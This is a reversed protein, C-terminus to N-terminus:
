QDGAFEDLQGFDEDSLPLILWKNKRDLMVPKGSDIGGVAGRRVRCVFNKNEDSLDFSSAKLTANRTPEFVDDIHYENDYVFDTFKGKAPHDDPIINNFIKEIDKLTVTKNGTRNKAKRELLERVEEEAKDRLPNSIDNKKTFDSIAKFLEDVSRNNSVDKKCGLADKFFNSRSKGEIFRVYPEGNNDPYTAEFLTLDFLAAQSLADTDIPSLKKPTLVVSDFDFGSKKNVMVILLRGFDDDNGNTKYHVFVVPNDSVNGLRGDDIVRAKIRDMVSHVMKKFVLNKSIYKRLLVPMSYPLEERTLFNHFKNKRRFKAEIKIIFENAVDNGLNWLKGVKVNYRNDKRELHATVASIAILEPGEIREVQVEQKCEECVEVIQEYETGCGTCRFM